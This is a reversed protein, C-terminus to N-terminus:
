AFGLWDKAPRTMLCAMVVALWGLGWLALGVSTLSMLAMVLALGFALYSGYRRRRFLAVTATWCALAYAAALIGTPLSWQTGLGLNTAAILAGFLGLLGYIVAVSTIAMPRQMPPEDADDLDEDVDDYTDDTM